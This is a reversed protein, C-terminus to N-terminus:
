VFNPSDNGLMGLVSRKARNLQRQESQNAAEMNLRLPPQSAQQPQEQQGGDIVNNLSNNSNTLNGVPQHRSNCLAYPNFRSCFNWFVSM